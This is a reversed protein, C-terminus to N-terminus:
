KEAAYTRSGEAYAEMLRKVTLIASSVFKDKHYVLKFTRDWAGDPHRLAHITGKRVEDEVLCNSIVAMCHNTLVAHKMAEPFPVEMRRHIHVNNEQLYEEFLARTGSGTERIVFDQGELDAPKFTTKQAFPHDHACALVLFDDIIPLVVLEPSSISGEVIGADLEARLLKEEVAQTNGVYSFVDMQPLERAFKELLDPLLYSGVTVTAGICFHESKSHHKMALELADFSAVTERAMALLSRGAETIYLHKSLRQFLQTQYHSELERIALSVTPQSLYLKEAALRMKGTEAVALFIKLHRITM